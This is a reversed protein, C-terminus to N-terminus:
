KGGRIALQKDCPASVTGSVTNISGAYVVPPSLQNTAPIVGTIQEVEPLSLM